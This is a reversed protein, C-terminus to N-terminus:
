SRQREEELVAVFDGPRTLFEGALYSVPCDSRRRTPQPVLLDYRLKRAPEPTKQAFANQWVEYPLVVSHDASERALQRFLAAHGPPVDDVFTVDTLDNRDLFDAVFGVTDALGFRRPDDGDALGPLTLAFVRHGRARLRHAAPRRSWAGHWAAPVLVYTEAM